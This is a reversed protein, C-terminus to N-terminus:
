RSPLDAPEQALRVDPYARKIAAVIGLANRRAPGDREQLPDAWMVLEPRPKERSVSALARTLPHDAPLPEGKELRRYDEPELAIAPGEAFEIARRDGEAFAHVSRRGGRTRERLARRCHAQFDAAARAPEIESARFAEIRVAHLRRGRLYITTAEDTAVRGALGPFNDLLKPREAESADRLQEEVEVLRRLIIESPDGAISKYEALAGRVDLVEAALAPVGRGRDRPDLARATLELAVIMNRLSQRSYYTHKEEYTLKVPRVTLDRKARLKAVFDLAAPISREMVLFRLLLFDGYLRVQELDDGSIRRRLTRDPEGPDAGEKLAPDGALLRAAISDNRDRIRRMADTDLRAFKKEQFGGAWPWPYSKICVAEGAGVAEDQAPPADRVAARDLGFLAAVVPGVAAVPAKGDGGQARATTAALWVVSSVILVTSKRIMM